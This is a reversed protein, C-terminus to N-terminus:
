RSGQASVVTLRTPRGLGDLGQAPLDTAYLHTDAREPEFAAALWAQRVADRELRVDVRM